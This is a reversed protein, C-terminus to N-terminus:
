VPTVEDDAREVRRAIEPRIEGARHHEVRDLAVNEALALDNGNVFAFRVRLLNVM